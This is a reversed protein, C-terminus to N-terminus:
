GRPGPWSFKKIAIRISGGETQMLVAESYFPLSCKFLRQCQREWYRRGHTPDSGMKRMFKEWRPTINKM